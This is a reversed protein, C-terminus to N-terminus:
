DIRGTQIFNLAFFILLMISVAYIATMPRIREKPGEVPFVM